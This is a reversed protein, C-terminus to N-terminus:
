TKLNREMLYHLRSYKKWKLVEKFFTIIVCNLFCSSCRRSSSANLYNSVGTGSVGAFAVSSAVDRLWYWQRAENDNLAVTLDHRLRFLALQSNDVLNNNPVNTGNMANRFMQCGYVMIENMLEIDSDYWAGGIEYGNATANHLYNRHKLIHDSGFDNKIITKYKTLNTTYMASGVYAGATANSTNMQENGMSKETIMLVHPEAWGTDGTRLRYNIDAVLYKRGSTQGVIYDGVFIDDFTEAAIQQSLTGDYFKSTIDKGRYIANHAGANQAVVIQKLSNIERTLEEKDAKSKLLNDTETSTYCSDILGKLIKGQAASLTKNVDDSTLENVIDLINVKKNLLEEIEEKSYTDETNANTVTFNFTSGNSFTIIYTDIQGETKQKKIDVIGNGDDGKEGKEGTDGKQGQPGVDGTDGKEGKSGQDGKLEEKHVEVYTEVINPVQENAYEKASELVNKDQNDVYKRDAKNNVVDLINPYDDEITSTANISSLVNMYFKNSKFIPTGNKNENETIRLQLYIISTDSLLSSKIELEYTEGVKNMQICKKTGDEKEFELWAVGDKFEKFYFIIKGQLNEGDIGLVKDDFSVMGSESVKIKKDKM